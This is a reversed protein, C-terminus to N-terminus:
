ASKNKVRHRRRVIAYVGTTIAVAGTVIGTVLWLTGQKWWPTPPPDGLSFGTERFNAPNDEQWVKLYYMLGFFLTKVESNTDLAVSINWKGNQVIIDDDAPWWSLPRDVEYLLSHLVMGEALEEGGTFAIQSPEIHITYIIIQTQVPHPNDLFYRTFSPPMDSLSRTRTNNTCGTVLHATILVFLLLTILTKSKRSTWM